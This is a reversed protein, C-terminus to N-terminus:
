RTASLIYEGYRKGEILHRGTLFADQVYGCALSYSVSRTNFELARSEILELNLRNFAHNLLVMKAKRGYGKGWYHENFMMAGTLATRNKWNINGISM